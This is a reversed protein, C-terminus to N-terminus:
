PQFFEYGKTRDPQSLELLGKSCMGFRLPNVVFVEFLQPSEGGWM